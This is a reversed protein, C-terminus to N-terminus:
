QLGGDDPLDPMSWMTPQGRGEGLRTVYARLRDKAHRQLSREKAEVASAPADPGVMEMALVHTTVTKGSVATLTKLAKTVDSNHTSTNSRTLAAYEAERLLDFVVSGYARMGQLRIPLPPDADKMKECRLSVALVNTEAKIEYAFDVGALLASSGRAGRSEDKGTHHILLVSCDFTDRLREAAALLLGADKASNEDLGGLARAVTDFVILAFRFGTAKLAATLAEVEAPTSVLPVAPVLALPVDDPECVKRHQMLAPIRTRGIGVPAEGACFAVAGQAAIRGWLQKAAAIALALELALFTKYSGSQGYFMGVANAPILDAVLWSPPPLSRMDRPLLVCFKGRKENKAPADADKAVEAFIEQAPPAAWAGPENQAYQSANCLKTLLDDPTWPPACHDNWEHLLLEHAKEVSLGLNLVEAAVAYTRNDGGGGEIAVHGTAAYRQLLERARAIAAATDLKIGGTAAVGDRTSDALCQAIWEPGPAITNTDSAYDYAKGNVVSPYVLVYGGIGRTDLKPGLKGVTSPVSGKFWYHTGHPTRITLTDPLPGRQEILRTLTEAGLSGDVDLVFMDSRAPVVAVNYDPNETWWKRIREPDITADNLGNATAPTKLGRACPFVFFGADAWALAAEGNTSLPDTM